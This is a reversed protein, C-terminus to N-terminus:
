ASAARSRTKPEATPQAAQTEAAANGGDIHAAKLPALAIDFLALWQDAFRRNDAFFAEIRESLWESYLAAAEGPNSCKACRTLLDTASEATGKARSFWAQRIAEVHQLLDAQAQALAEARARTLGLLSHMSALSENSEQSQTM